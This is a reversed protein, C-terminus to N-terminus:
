KKVPVAEVIKKFRVAVKLSELKGFGKWHEKVSIKKALNTPLCLSINETEELCKDISPVNEVSSVKIGDFSLKNNDGEIDLTVKYNSAVNQSKALWISFVFSKSPKHYALNVHFLEDLAMISKTWNTFRCIVDDELIMFWLHRGNFIRSHRKDGESAHTDFNKLKM